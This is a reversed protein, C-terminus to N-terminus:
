GVLVQAAEIRAFYDFGRYSRQQRGFTLPSAKEM